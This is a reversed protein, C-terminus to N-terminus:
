GGKLFVEWESRGGEMGCYQQLVDLGRIGTEMEQRVANPDTLVRHARFQDRIDAVISDRKLSPYQKAARLIQRYLLLVQERTAM